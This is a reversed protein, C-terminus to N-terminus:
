ADAKILDAGKEAIAITPANTNGSIVTPMISADVVRLKKVGRVKLQPDVVSQEDAGMRCTSTPHYILGCQHRIQTLLENDDDVPRPFLVGGNHAALSPQEIIALAKRIGNILDTQDAKDTLFGYNILPAKLPNDPNLTVEGRSRPRLLCAHCTFGHKLTPWWDYGSNNFMVPLLHLQIDPESVADSSRIFAGVEALSRALQGDKKLLYRIFAPAMKLLGFPTLTMGDRRANKVHISIDVHEQLNKGVEPSDVMVEINHPALETAPGIGSRLLLQPSNFAGSALIVEKSASAVYRHGARRYCVGNATHDSFLVRETLCENLIVLNRRDKIPKLYADYAGCRKGNAITFQYAGYGELQEGNFDPNFPLGYDACAALFRRSVKYWPPVDSVKLPGSDNHYADSGRQNGEAKKFYPLLDKYSWGDCGNAAWGDYDSALGRTYIMANIGSSGGLMKGRPTYLGQSNRLAPTPQSRYLWNFKRSHMFRAFGSPMSSFFGGSGPGAELLLVRHKGNESIRNALVCGASGAGVIIYDYHHQRYHTTM